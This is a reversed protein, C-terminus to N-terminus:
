RRSNPAENLVERGEQYSDPEWPIINMETADKVGQSWFVRKIDNPSLPHYFARGAWLEQSKWWEQTGSIQREKELGDLRM